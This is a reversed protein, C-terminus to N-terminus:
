FHEIIQSIKTSHHALNLEEHSKLTTSNSYLNLRRGFLMHNPSLCSEFETSYEYTLPLNNLICEIEYLVTQMEEFSLKTSRLHKRLLEKTSRVLREFFGGHWPPLNFHWNIKLNSIYTQTDRSVFNNCNYHIDMIILKTLSHDRDFLIPSITEVPLPANVLRGRCRLLGKEDIFFLM